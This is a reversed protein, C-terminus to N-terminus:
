DVNDGADIGADLAAEALLQAARDGTVGLVRLREVADLAVGRAAASVPDDGLSVFTGARGRGEILGSEELTRYASAVTNAAIGLHSALGRVTPLKSGPALRRDSIARVVEDHLQRYPPEPSEADISFFDLAADSM